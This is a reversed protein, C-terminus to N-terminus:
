FGARRLPKEPAAQSSGSSHASRQETASRRFLASLFGQRAPKAPETSVTVPAVSSNDRKPSRAAALRRREYAFGHEKYWDPASREFNRVQRTQRMAQHLNMNERLPARGALIAARFEARDERSRPRSTSARSTATVLSSRACQM